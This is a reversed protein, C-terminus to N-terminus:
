ENLYKEAMFKIQELVIPQEAFKDHLIYLLNKLKDNENNQVYIDILLTSFAFYENLPISEKLCQKLVIEFKEKDMSHKMMELQSLTNNIIKHALGSVENEKEHGDSEIPNAQDEEITIEAVEDLMEKASFDQLEVINEQELIKEDEIDVEALVDLSLDDLHQEQENKESSVAVESEEYIPFPIEEIEDEKREEILDIVPSADEDLMKEIEALYSKEVAEDDLEKDLIEQEEVSPYIAEEQETLELKEIVDLDLEVDLSDVTKDLTVNEENILIEESNINSVYTIIDEEEIVSNTTAKSDKVEITEQVNETVSEAVEESLEFLVNSWNKMLFYSAIILFLLMILISQWIPFLERSLIGIASVCLALGIIIFKGRNSLGLPLLYMVPVVIVLSLLALIYLSM